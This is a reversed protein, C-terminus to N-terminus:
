PGDADRSALPSTAPGHLVAGDIGFRSGHCPCDWTREADNFGVLCGLHTCVASVQHLQGDNDRHVAWHRGKIRVVTGDGPAIATVRDTPTAHLRDAVFHRATALNATVFSAAEAVPHLRRPDYLRSWPAKEGQILGALLRGAMVGGSLGWGGFGTAVYVHETAPHFLGVHPVRDTTWYDQTAWRHTIEDVPFHERTWTMLRSFRDEVPAEGPSFKEGTVILLRRGETYPATRVSRTGGHPTIYMGQPAHTEDLPAAVVVERLPTLRTFALSRDFVPHHTAIVVDEAVVSAGSETTLRCPRGERLGTVRTHEYIKGGNRTLELALALLFRRPHFQVQNGLRIASGTPFPLGTDTVLSSELGAERAADVEATIEGDDDGHAAYTYAPRREIDCDIGLEAATAVLHEVAEHHSQAYLRAAQAGYVSRLHAYILSHQATLKATTYGSAGAAIRDAELLVVSRGRRALEWATFLGAIGGGAVAVDAQVDEALEPYATPDATEMWYCKPVDPVTAMMGVRIKRVVRNRASDGRNRQIGHGPGLPSPWPARGAPGAGERADGRHSLAAADKGDEVRRSRPEEPPRAGPM